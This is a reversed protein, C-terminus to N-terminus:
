RIFTLTDGSDNYFSYGGLSFKKIDDLSQIRNKICFEIMMGRAIKSPIGITKLVGGKNEKFQITIMPCPLATIDIVQSYEQSALNIIYEHERAEQAIAHSVRTKWFSVLSPMSSSLNNTGMELRYPQILDYPRLLGYLGSLIRLSSQAYVQEDLTYTEPHLQQFVHGYFLFLSPNSNDGTHNTTWRQYREFNILSLKPSIGLKKELQAASYGRLIDIIQIAYKLFLPQTTQINSHKKNKNLSKAPSTLFIM